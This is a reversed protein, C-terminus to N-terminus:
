STRCFQVRVLAKGGGEKIWQPPIKSLDMSSTQRDYVVNVAHTREEGCAAIPAKENSAGDGPEISFNPNRVDVVILKEGTTRLTTSSFCRGVLVCLARASPM